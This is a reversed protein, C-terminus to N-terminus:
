PGAFKFGSEPYELRVPEIKGTFLAAETGCMRPERLRERLGPTWAFLTEEPPFWVM